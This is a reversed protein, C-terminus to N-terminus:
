EVCHLASICVLDGFELDMLTVIDREKLSIMLIPGIHLVRVLPHVFQTHPMPVCIKCANFGAM